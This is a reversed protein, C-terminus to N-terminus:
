ARRPLRRRRHGARGRVGPTDQAEQDIARMAEDMAALSTGEPGTVSVEFEAEDVDSPIYEQKVLRYLPVTSAIVALAVIAVVALRHACRWRSCGRTAATSGPTSAAARPPTAGHGGHGDGATADEARLLRASMM